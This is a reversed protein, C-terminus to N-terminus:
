KGFRNRWHHFSIFRSVDNNHSAINCFSGKCIPSQIATTFIGLMGKAIGFYLLGFVILLWFIQSAYTELIQAIQPM